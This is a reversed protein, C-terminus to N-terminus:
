WLNVKIYILSVGDLAVTQEGEQNLIILIADKVQIIPEM